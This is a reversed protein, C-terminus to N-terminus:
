PTLSPTLSYPHIPSSEIDDEGNWMVSICGQYTMTPYLLLTATLQTPPHPPLPPSLPYPHSTFIPSLSPSYLHSKTLTLLPSEKHTHSDTILTHPSSSTLNPHHHVHPITVRQTLFPSQSHSHSHPHSYSLRSSQSQSQSQLPPHPHPHIRSLSHPHYLTISPSPLLPHYLALTISPSFSPSLSHPHYLTLNFSPSIPHSPPHYLTISPSTGVELQMTDIVRQVNESVAPQDLEQVHFLLFYTSLSCSLSSPSPANLYLM